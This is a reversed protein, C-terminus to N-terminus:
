PTAKSPNITKASKGLCALFLHTLSFYCGGFTIKAYILLYKSSKNIISLIFLRAKMLLRAM